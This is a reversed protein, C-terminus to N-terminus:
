LVGVVAVVNGSDPMICAVSDGNEFYLDVTPIYNYTQNGILIKNGCVRGFHARNTDRPMNAKVWSMVAEQMDKINASRM